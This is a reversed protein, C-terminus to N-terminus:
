LFYVIVVRVLTIVSMYNDIYLQLCNQLATVDRQWPIFLILIILTWLYRISRLPFGYVTIILLRRFQMLLYIWMSCYRRYALMVFYLALYLEWLLSFSFFFFVGKVRIKSIEHRRMRIESPWVLSGSDHSIPSPNLRNYTHM